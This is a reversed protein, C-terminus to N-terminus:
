VVGEGYPGTVASVISLLLTEQSSVVELLQSIAELKLEGTYRRRTTAM